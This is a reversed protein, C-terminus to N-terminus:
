SPSAGGGRGGLGLLRNVGMEGGVEEGSRVAGRAGVGMEGGGEEEASLGAESDSLTAFFRMFRIARKPSEIPREFEDSWSREGVEPEGEVAFRGGEVVGGSAEEGWEVEGGAEIEGGGEEEGSAEGGGCFGETDLLM